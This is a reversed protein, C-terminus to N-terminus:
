LPAARSSLSGADDHASATAAHVLSVLLALGIMALLLLRWASVSM